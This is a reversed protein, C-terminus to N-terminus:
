EMFCDDDMEFDLEFDTMLIEKDDNLREPRRPVNSSGSNINQDSSTITDM